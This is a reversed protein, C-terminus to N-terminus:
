CSRSRRSDRRPWARCKGIFRSDRCVTFAAAFGHRVRNPLGRDALAKLIRRRLALTKVRQEATETTRGAYSRGAAAGMNNRWAPPVYRLEPRAALMDIDETGM